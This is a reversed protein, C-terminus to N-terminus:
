GLAQYGWQSSLRPLAIVIVATSNNDIKEKPWTLDEMAADCNRMLIESALKGWLSSLANRDTAPVLVSFFYLYEAAGSYSECENQFQAYTYLMDLYEQRFAHKDALCDFLM